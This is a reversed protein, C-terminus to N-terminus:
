VPTGSLFLVYDDEYAQYNSQILADTWHSEDFYQRCFANLNDDWRMRPRGPNRQPIFGYYRDNPPATIFKSM